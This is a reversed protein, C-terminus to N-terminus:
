RGGPLFKELASNHKDVSDQMADLGGPAEAAVTAAARRQRGKDEDYWAEISFRVIQDVESTDLTLGQFSIDRFDSMFYQQDSQLAEIFKAIKQIHGDTSPLVAGELVLAKSVLSTKDVTRSEQRLYLNSLWIENNLRNSVSLIKETWLVKDVEQVKTIAGGSETLRTYHAFNENLAASVASNQNNYQRVEDDYYQYGLYGLSGVILALALFGQRDSTPQGESAASDAGGGGIRFKALRAILSTPVIQASSRKGGRRAAPRAQENARAERRVDATPRLKQNVLTYNATGIKLDGASESMLNLPEALPLEQFMDLIPKSVTEVQVQPAGSSLRDRLFRELGRIRSFQGYLELREPRGAYRQGEFFDLSDAIERIFGRLPSGLIREGVGRAITELTDSADESALDSVLDQESLSAMAEEGSVGNGEAMLRALTWVGFPLTRVVLAGQSANALVITSGLAGLYLGCWPDRHHAARRVLVDAVPTVMGVKLALADLRTLQSGLRGADAFAIAGGSNNAASGPGFASKGYSISRCNLHTRGFEHIMAPSSSAFAEQRTDLYLVRPDDIVVRLQAMKSPERKRLADAALRLMHEFVPGTGAEAKWDSLFKDGANDDGLFQPEKEGGLDVIVARWGNDGIHLFVRYREEAAGGVGSTTDKKFLKLM